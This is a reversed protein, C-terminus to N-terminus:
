CVGSSTSRRITNSWRPTGLMRVRVFVGFKSTECSPFLPPRIINDRGTTKLDLTLVKPRQRLTATWLRIRRDPDRCMKSHQQLGTKPRTHHTAVQRALLPWTSIKQPTENEATWRERFHKVNKCHWEVGDFLFTTRLSKIKAHLKNTLWASIRYSLTTWVHDQQEKCAAQESMVMRSFYKSLQLMLMGFNVLFGRERVNGFNKWHCGFRHSRISPWRSFSTVWEHKKSAHADVM